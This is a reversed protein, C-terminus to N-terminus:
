ICLFTKVVFNYFPCSHFQLKSSFNLFAFEKLIRKRENYIERM